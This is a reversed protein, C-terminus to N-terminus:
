NGLGAEKFIELKKDLQEDVPCTVARPAIAMRGRGGRRGANVTRLFWRRGRLSKFKLNQVPCSVAYAAISADIPEM